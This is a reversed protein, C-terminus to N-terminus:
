KFVYVLGAGAYFGDISGLVYNANVNLGFNKTIWYTNGLTTTVYKLNNKEFLNITGLSGLDLEFDDSGIHTYNYRASFYTDWKNNKYGITPAVYAYTSSNGGGASAEISFSGGKEKNNLFGYKAVFGTVFDAFHFESLLGLQLNETVGYDIRGYPASGNLAVGGQFSVAEKEITHASHSSSFPAFSCGGLSLLTIIATSKIVINNLM